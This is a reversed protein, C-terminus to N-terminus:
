NERGLRIGNGVVKPRSFQFKFSQGSYWVILAAFYSGNMM